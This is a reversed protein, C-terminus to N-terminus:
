QAAPSVKRERRAPITAPASAPALRTAPATAKSTSKIKGPQNRKKPLPSTQSKVQTQQPTITFTPEPQNSGRLLCEQIEKCQELLEIRKENSIGTRRPYLPSFQPYVTSDIDFRDFAELAGQSNFRPLNVRVWAHGWGDDWGKPGPVKAYMFESSFDTPSLAMGKSDPHRAVQLLSWQLLSAFERCVGASGTKEASNILNGPEQWAILWGSWASDLGGNKLDYKGQTRVVLEHVLRVREVPNPNVRIRDLQRKFERQKDSSELRSFAGLGQGLVGYALDSVPDMVKALTSKGENMEPVDLERCTSTMLDSIKEAPGDLKKFFNFFHAKEKFCFNGSAMVRPISLFIIALGTYFIRNLM